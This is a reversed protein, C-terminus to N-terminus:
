QYYSFAHCVRLLSIVKIVRLGSSTSFFSGGIIVLILFIFSLNNPVNNFSIGLNSVSSSISVLIHLFNTEEFSATEQKSTAERTEKSRKIKNIAM